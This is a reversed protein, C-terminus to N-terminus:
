LFESFFTEGKVSLSGILAMRGSTIDAVNAPEFTVRDPSLRGKSFEVQDALLQKTRALLDKASQSIACASGKEVLKEVYTKFSSLLLLQRHVEDNRTQIKNTETIKIKDLEILLTKCQADTGEQHQLEVRRKNM